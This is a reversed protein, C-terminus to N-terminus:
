RTLRRSSLSTRMGPRTTASFKTRRGFATLARLSEPMSGIHAWQVRKVKNVEARDIDIHAIRKANRAFKAPVGAVRDDFRAGLAILFDCDDVTYNAFAAGHMGLMNMCLPSATDVAGIGMLTTVVPIGFAESFERLTSAAEGAVVGGGAYILPRKADGLMEFFRAAEADDISREALENM